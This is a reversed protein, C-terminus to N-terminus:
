PSPTGESNADYDIYEVALDLSWCRENRGPMTDPIELLSMCCQTMVM